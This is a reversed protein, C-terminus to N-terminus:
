SCLLSECREIHAHLSGRFPSQDRASGCMTGGYICPLDLSLRSQWPPAAAAERGVYIVTSAIRMSEVIPPPQGRCSIASAPGARRAERASRPPAAVVDRELSRVVAMSDWSQLSAVMSDTSKVM